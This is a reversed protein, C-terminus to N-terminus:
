AQAWQLRTAATQRERQPSPVHITYVDGGLDHHRKVIRVQEKVVVGTSTTHTYLPTHAEAAEGGLRGSVTQRERHLSPVYITYVDGGLDCSSTGPRKVEENVVEGLTTHRYLATEGEQYQQEQAAAM